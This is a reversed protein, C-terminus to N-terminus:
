LPKRFADCRVFVNTCTSLGKNVSVNKQPSRPSKPRIIQMHAKLQSVYDTPDPVSHNISSSFFEGPLRLTTGYVLEATTTALDEKVATRIGLLVLPLVDM